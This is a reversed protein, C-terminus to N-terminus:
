SWIISDHSEKSFDEFLNDVDISAKASIAGLATKSVKSVYRGAQKEILENEQGFETEGSVKQCAYVQLMNVYLLARNREEEPSISM